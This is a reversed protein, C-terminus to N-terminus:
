KGHKVRFFEKEALTIEAASMEGQVYDMGEQAKLHGQALALALYVYAFQMNVETGKGTAYLYGMIEQGIPHGQAAAKQAWYFAKEGNAEVGIGRVYLKAVLAQASADGAQAEKLAYEFVKGCASVLLIVAFMGVLNQRKMTGFRNLWMKIM